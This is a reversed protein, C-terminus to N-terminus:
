PTEAIRVWGKLKRWEKVGVMRDYNTRAKSPQGWFAPLLLRASLFM